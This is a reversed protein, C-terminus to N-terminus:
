GAGVKPLYFYPGSGHDLLYRANHYFYLAFDFLAGPVFKGDV